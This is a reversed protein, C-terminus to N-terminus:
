RAEDESEHPAIPGLPGHGVVVRVRIHTLLLGAYVHGSVLSTEQHLSWIAHRLAAQMFKCPCVRCHCQPSHSPPHPSLPQPFKDFGSGPLVCLESGRVKWGPLGMQRVLWRM